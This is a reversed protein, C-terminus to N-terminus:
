KAAQGVNTLVESNTLFDSYAEDTTLVSTSVVVSSSCTDSPERIHKRGADYKVEGYLKALNCGPKLLKFFFLTVHNCSPALHLSFPSVTLFLADRIEFLSCGRAALRVVRAM